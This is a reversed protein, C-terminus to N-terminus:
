EVAERLKRRNEISLALYAALFLEAKERTAARFLTKSPGGKNSMRVVNNHENIMFSFPKDTM